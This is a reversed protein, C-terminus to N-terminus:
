RFLNNFFLSFFPPPTHTPPPPPPPSLLFRANEWFLHSQKSWDQLLSILFVLLSSYLEMWSFSFFLWKKRTWLDALKLQSCMGFKDSPTPHPAPHEEVHHSVLFISCMSYILLSMILGGWHQGLISWNAFANQFWFLPSLGGCVAPGNQAHCLQVGQKADQVAWHQCAVGLANDM